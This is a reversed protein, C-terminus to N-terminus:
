PSTRHNPPLTVPRVRTEKKRMTPDDMMAAQDSIEEVRALTEAPM